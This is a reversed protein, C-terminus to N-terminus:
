HVPMHKTTSTNMKKIEIARKLHSMWGSVLYIYQLYVGKNLLIKHAKNRFVCLAGSDHSRKCSPNEWEDLVVQCQCSGQFQASFVM